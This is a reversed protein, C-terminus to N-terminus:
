IELPEVVPIRLRKRHELCRARYRAEADRYALALADCEEQSGEGRHLRLRALDVLSWCAETAERLDKLEDLEAPHM